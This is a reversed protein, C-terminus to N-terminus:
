VEEKQLKLIDERLEHVKQEILNIIEMFKEDSQGTPDELGWNLNLSGPIYPCAVNCGMSVIIDAKPIDTFLKSYQDAEMDIGYVQKMLRVADQNIRPKTETGASYCDCIDSLYKRGLAEAIQSRCSNHVCVFAVKIKREYVLETIGNSTKAYKLRLKIEKEEKGFLPIGSGLITPIVSIHYEDILNDRVMPQIISKGGCIWINKDKKRRLRETLECPDERVFKINETSRENKHTIVYSTLEEYPWIEPSLEERVQDYTTRGMVVTDIGNIFESYTDGSEAEKDQGTLWDVGGNKDAIYGDLSMAIYLIVKRM